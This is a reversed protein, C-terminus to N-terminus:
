ARLHSLHTMSPVPMMLFADWRLTRRTFFLSLFPRTRLISPNGETALSCQTVDLRHIYQYRNTARDLSFGHSGAGLPVDEEVFLSAFSQRKANDRRRSEHKLGTNCVAERRKVLDVEKGVRGDCRDKSTTRNMGGTVSKEPPPPLVYPHFVEVDGPCCPQVRKKKM